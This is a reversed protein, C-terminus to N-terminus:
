NFFVDLIEQIEFKEGFVDKINIKFLRKKIKNIDYECGILVNEIIETGNSGLFDGFFKINKIKGKEVNFRLDITGKEEYRIKNKYSFEPSNGFNWEWTRYKENALKNVAMIIDTSLDLILTSQSLFENTIFLAFEDISINNVLLPRINTVRASVSKIGKSTIKEQNVNLYKKMKNLDVDFLFTGHHLFRNKYKIQANGSIKKGDIEIDNKGSFKANLGIKRLVNIIPCLINEYSQSIKNKKNFIFSFCLNGDDQYVAGGGTIRRVVNVKDYEVAKLNIEEITNQNRGVVITNLNKWLFFIDDKINSKLLYEDLALNFYIDTSYNKFFIM